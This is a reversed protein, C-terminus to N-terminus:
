FGHARKVEGWLEKDALLMKLASFYNEAMDGEWLKKSLRKLTKIQTVTMGELHELLDALIKITEQDRGEIEKTVIDIMHPKRDLYGEIRETPTLNEV